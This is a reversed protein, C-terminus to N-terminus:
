LSNASVAKVPLLDDHVIAADVQMRVVAHHAHDVFRVVHDGFLPQRVVQCPNHREKGM